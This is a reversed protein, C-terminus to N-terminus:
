RHDNNQNRAGDIKRKQKDNIWDIYKVEYYRLRDIFTEDIEIGYVEAVQFIINWDLAVIGM